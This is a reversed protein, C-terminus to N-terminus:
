FARCFRRSRETSRATRTWLATFSPGSRRLGPRGFRTVGGVGVRGVSGESSRGAIVQVGGSLPISVVAASRKSLLRVGRSLRVSRRRTCTGTGGVRGLRGNRQRLFLRRAPRLRWWSTPIFASLCWTAGPVRVRMATGSHTAHSGRVGGGSGSQSRLRWVRDCVPMKERSARRVRECAKDRRLAIERAGEYRRQLTSAAPISGADASAGSLADVLM